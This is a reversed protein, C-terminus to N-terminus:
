TRMRLKGSVLLHVVDTVNQISLKESFAYSFKLNLGKEKLVFKIECAGFRFSLNQSFTDGRLLDTLSGFLSMM